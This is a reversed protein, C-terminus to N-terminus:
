FRWLASVQQPSVVVAPVAERSSSTVMLIVGTVAGLAGAVAFGRLLNTATQGRSLTAQVDSRRPDCTGYSGDPNQTCGESAYDNLASQRLAASIGVGVLGAAGVSLAVWAAVRRGSDVHVEGPAASAPEGSSSPPPRVVVDLIV